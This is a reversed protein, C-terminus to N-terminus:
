FGFSVGARAMLSEDGAYSVGANLLVNDNFYHFVGVAGGFEGDYYGTGASLQTNGIARANPVLASLAANSAFGTKVKKDLKNVKNNLASISGNTNSAMQNMKEGLMEINGQLAEDNAYLQDINEANRKIGEANAAIGEALVQDNAALTAIDQTNQYVQGDLNLVTDVVTPHVVVTEEQSVGNEFDDAVWTATMGGVYHAVALKNVDGVDEALAAVTNGVTRVAGAVTQIDAKNQAINSANDAILGALVQDNDSLTQIQSSHTDVVGAIENVTANTADIRSSLVQDNEALTQIQSTHEDVVSAIETVNNNLTEINQTNVATQRDLAVVADVVNNTNSAYTTSSLSSVNGVSSEVNSIRTNHDAVSSEVNSIRTNHNEVERSINTVTENTENLTNTINTINTTITGIVGSGEEGDGVLSNVQGQLSAIDTKNALSRENAEQALTYAGGATQEAQQAATEARTAGSLATEAAQGAKGAEALARDATGQATEVDGKLTSIDHTNKAVQQDLHKISAVVNGGQAYNTNRLEDINGIALDLDKLAGTVNRICGDSTCNRAINNADAFNLSGLSTKVGTLDSVIGDIRKQTAADAEEWSKKIEAYDEKTIYNTTTTKGDACANAEQVGAFVGLFVVSTILLKKM